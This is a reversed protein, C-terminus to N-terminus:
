YGRKFISRKNTVPNGELIFGLHRYRRDRTSGHNSLSYVYPVRYDYLIAPDLKGDKARRIRGVAQETNKENNISSVLFEVEWTKVNTGETAKAYTTLTIFKRQKEAKELVAKNDANDGYYLGLDSEAVYMKLYDYYARCHEKQTFFVICSHGKAYENIIDHCVMEKYSQENVVFSDIVQYNLTPRNAYPIDSLRIYNHKMIADASAYLDVLAYKPHDETGVNKFLPNFFLTSKKKIVKVPLIDKDEEEEDEKKSEYKYCMGGYYLNMIHDLGDSREPTATLGLRYKPRFNAVVSYSSAPCHHMEDQIVLGFTSYLKELEESSLRNLTQVTAITLFHGVDRSKAKILGAHVKGDFALAIDKKWGDVLDDKHVVILTKCSLRSAIYLGLISKGKGTPLQIISRLPTQDKYYLYNGGAESQDDRLTLVFPAHDITSYVREDIINLRSYDEVVSALDFGIPVKICPEGNYKSQSYYMLSPPISVRNYRSYRVANRYAPNDFTLKKKILDIEEVSPNCLILSDAVILKRRNVKRLVM